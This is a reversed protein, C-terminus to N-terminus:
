ERHEFNVKLKSKQTNGTEDISDSVHAMETAWNMMGREVDATADALPKQLLEQHKYTCWKETLIIQDLATHFSNEMSSSSSPEDRALIHLRPIFQSLPM